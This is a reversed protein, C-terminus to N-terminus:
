ASTYSTLPDRPPSSLFSKQHTQICIYYFYSFSKGRGSVKKRNWREERHYKGGGSFWFHFFLMIVMFNMENLANVWESVKDLQGSESRYESLIYASQRIRQIIHMLCTGNQWYYRCRSASWVDKKKGQVNWLVIKAVMWILSYKKGFNKKNNIQWRFPQM